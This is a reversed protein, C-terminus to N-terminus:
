RVNSLCYHAELLRLVYISTHFRVFLEQTRSHYLCMFVVNFHRSPLYCPLKFLAGTFRIRYSSRDTMNFHTASSEM